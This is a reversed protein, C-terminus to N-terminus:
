LIAYTENLNPNGTVITKWLITEEAIQYQVLCLDKPCKPKTKQNQKQSLMERVWRWRCEIEMVGRKQLLLMMQQLVKEVKRTQEQVMMEQLVTQQLIMEVKKAQKQLMMEQLVIQQLM